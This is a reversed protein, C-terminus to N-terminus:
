IQIIKSSEKEKEKRIEGLLKKKYIQNATM